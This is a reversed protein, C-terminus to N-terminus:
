LHLNLFYFQETIGSESPLHWKQLIYTRTIEDLASKLDLQIYECLQYFLTACHKCRGCGGAKCSCKWIFSRRYALFSPRVRRCNKEMSAAVSCKVLVYKQGKSINGKTIVKKM